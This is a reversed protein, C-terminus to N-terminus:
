GKNGSTVYLVNIGKTSINNISVDMVIFSLNGIKDNSLKSFESIISSQEKGSLIGIRIEDKFSRNYGFIKFFLPAQDDATLSMTDAYSIPSLFIFVSLLIKLGIVFLFNKNMVNGYIMFILNSNKTPVHSPM